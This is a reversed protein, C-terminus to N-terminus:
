APIRDQVQTADHGSAPPYDIGPGEAVAARTPPIAYGVASMDIVRDFALAGRYKVTAATIEAVYARVVQSRVLVRGERAVVHVDVHTGPLLRTVGEVLIGRNSVDLVVLERGIRL